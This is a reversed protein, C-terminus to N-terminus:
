PQPPPGADEPIPLGDPLSRLYECSVTRVDEWVHGEALLTPIDKIWRKEGGELRYIHPSGTCRLLVHIPSGVEFKALFSDEVVHVNRWALGLHEFADMSSIWRLRDNQLMYIDPGSGKLVLGDRIILSASDPKLRALGAGYATLPLNMVVVLAAVVALFRGLFREMGIAPVRAPPTWGPQGPRPPRPPLKRVGSPSGVPKAAAAPAPREEARPPAAQGLSAPAAGRPPQAASPAPAPAPPPVGARREAQRAAQREALADLLLDLIQDTRSSSGRAPKNEM